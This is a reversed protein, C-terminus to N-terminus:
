RTWRWSGSFITRLAWLMGAAMWGAALSNAHITHVSNLYIETKAVSPIGTTNLNLNLNLHLYDLSWAKWTVTGPEELRQPAVLQSSLAVMLPLAWQWAM